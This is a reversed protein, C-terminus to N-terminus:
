EGTQEDVIEHMARYKREIEEDSMEEEVVKTRIEDVYGYNNKALFIASVPNTKGEKMAIEDTIELMQFWKALLERNEVRTTGNVMGLLTLRSVGLVMALGSVTTRVDDEACADFYMVCARDIDKPDSMKPKPIKAIKVLHNATKTNFAVEQEKKEAIEQQKIKSLKNKGAM